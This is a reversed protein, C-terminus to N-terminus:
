LSACQDSKSGAINGYGTPRPRNGRCQLNEAIRNEIISVGGSNQFVQMNGGVRNRRLHVPGANSEVQIDGDVRATM